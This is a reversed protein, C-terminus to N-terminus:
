AEAGPINATIVAKPGPDDGPRDIIVIAMLGVQPQQASIAPLRVMGSITMPVSASPQSRTVAATTQSAPGLAGSVGGSLIVGAALGAAGIAPKLGAVHHSCHMMREQNRPIECAETVKVIQAPVPRVRHQFPM